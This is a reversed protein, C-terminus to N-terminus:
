LPCTGSKVERAKDFGGNTMICREGTEPDFCYLTGGNDYAVNKFDGLLRTQNPDKWMTWTFKTSLLIKVM